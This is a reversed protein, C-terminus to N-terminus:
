RQKCQELIQWCQFLGRPVHFCGKWKGGKLPLLLDLVIRGIDAGPHALVYQLISKYLEATDAQFHLLPKRVAHEKREIAALTVQGSVLFGDVSPAYEDYLAPLQAFNEYTLLVTEYDPQLKQLRALSAATPERLSQSTIIALKMAKEPGETISNEM